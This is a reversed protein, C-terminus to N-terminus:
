LGLLKKISTIKHLVSEPVNSIAELKQLYYIIKGSDGLQVACSILFLYGGADLLEINNELLLMADKARNEEALINARLKLVDIMQPYKELLFKSLEERQHNDKSAAVLSTFLSINKDNTTERFLKVEMPDLSLGGLLKQIIKIRLESDAPYEKQYFSLLKEVFHKVGDISKSLLGLSIGYFIIEEEDVLCSLESEIQLNSQKSNLALSNKCETLSAALSGKQLKIKSSLYSAYPNNSNILRSQEISKEAETGKGISHYIFAMSTYSDARLTKNLRKDDSSIKFYHLAQEYEDIITYTNGLQYADYPHKDREFQNLLIALNREAKKKKGDTPINYGVHDIVISCNILKYKNEILSPVIQEHVKGTFKIEPQNRFLRTNRMVNTRGTYTDINNVVCYYGLKQDGSIIKKLEDHSSKVLREDADLYLIWDGTSQELAFNRAASFDNIWDFHFIKANYVQAIEITSDTSGTDVIVIEDVVDKVSELCDRLYKEENKVIMSLTIAPM